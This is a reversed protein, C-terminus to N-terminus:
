KIWNFENGGVRFGLNTQITWITGLNLQRHFTKWDLEKEGNKCNILIKFKEGVSIDEWRQSTLKEWHVEIRSGERMRKILSEKRHSEGRNMKM